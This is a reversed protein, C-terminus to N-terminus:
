ARLKAYRRATLHFVLEGRQNFGEARSRVVGWGPNADSLTKETVTTRYAITDGALVPKLWRLDTVGPMLAAPPVAAGAAVAAAREAAEHTEMLSQWIAASQWGSAALGGFISARGAEESVHFPQPDFARAFRVIDEAAFHHTGLDTVAGVAIDDFWLM